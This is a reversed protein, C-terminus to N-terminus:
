PYPKSIAELKQRIEDDLPYAYKHKGPVKKRQLNEYKSETSFGKKKARNLTRKHVKDGNSDILVTNPKTQGTYYWNMAQYIGGHHDESPDAYSVLLKLGNDKRELMNMSYTVVQSVPHEHEKLAVRTLEVAETQNLQVFGGINPNASRSYVIAGTFESNEWVGFTVNKVAPICKSYHFQECAYKAAQYSCYDVKVSM